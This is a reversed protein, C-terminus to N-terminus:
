VEAAEEFSPDINTFGASLSLAIFPLMHLTQIFVLGHLGYIFNIPTKILGMQMLILNLTGYKGFFIIFAFVGAYAPLVIPLLILATFLTKGRHRYRALIYSLPVGIVTTTLLVLTSLVLTNGFTKLYYADQFFELYNSIGHSSTAAINFSELVLISLPYVVLFAIVSWLLTALFINGRTM